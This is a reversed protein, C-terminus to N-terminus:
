LVVQAKDPELSFFLGFTTDPIVRANSILISVEPSRTIGGRPHSRAPNPLM